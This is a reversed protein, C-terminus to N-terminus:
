QCIVKGLSAYDREQNLKSIKVTCPAGGATDFSLSDTASAEVQFYGQSNSQGVGRASTVAADAVPAGDKRVAQGFLTLVHEVHWAVHQVNGPYLTFERAATDYWVSPANVPRLSVSYARYPELFIPLREGAKIRGKSHNDVLVDFESNASGGDVSVVLASEELNRGGLLADDHDLVAGTQLSLSYQTRNSGEFDHLIEGRASGYRSFAM